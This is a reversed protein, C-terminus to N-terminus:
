NHENKKAKKKKPMNKKLTDWLMRHNYSLTDIYDYEIGEDIEKFSFWRVACLDDGAVPEIENKNVVAVYLHTRIGNKSNRYREDNINMSSIYILDSESLEINTEEYLERVADHVDSSSSPDTFGGPFCYNLKNRKKGLLIEKKDLDVVAIDVTSFATPWPLFPKSSNQIHYGTRKLLKNTLEIFM